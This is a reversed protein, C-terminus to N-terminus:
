RDRGGLEAITTYHPEKPTSNKKGKTKTKDKVNKVQEKTM